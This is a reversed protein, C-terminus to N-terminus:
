GNWQVTHSAVSPGGTIVHVRTCESGVEMNTSPLMFHSTPLFFVAAGPGDVSLLQQILVAEVMCVCAEVCSCTWVCCKSVDHGAHAALCSFYFSDTQESDGSAEFESNLWLHAQVESGGQDMGQTSPNYIPRRCLAKKICCQPNFRPDCMSPLYEALPALNELGM